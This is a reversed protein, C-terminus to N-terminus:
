AARRATAEALDDFVAGNLEFARTVEAIVREREAEDWPVSDLRERYADRFLKPKAIGSFVFFNVGHADFGHQRQLVARIAQGGSLDGLYRTYHHAVFGAPWAATDQIRAAYRQTSALPAVQDRWDPGLLFALDAVIAPLRTLRDDVFGSVVPDTRLAGAVQELAEYVFYLQGLLLAYDDRSREGEILEAVFTAGETEAHIGRTRERVLQSFPPTTTM